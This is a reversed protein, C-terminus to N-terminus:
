GEHGSGREVKAEAEAKGTKAEGTKDARAQAQADSYKGTAYRSDLKMVNEVLTKDRSLELIQRLGEMYFELDGLEEVVNTMDLPKNYFVSKKIAGFLEGAEECVCGAMHLLDLKTPTITQMIETGPKRLRTVLQQHMHEPKM